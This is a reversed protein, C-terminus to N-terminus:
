DSSNAIKFFNNTDFNSPTEANITNSVPIFEKSFKDIEYFKSIAKDAKKVVRESGSFSLFIVALVSLFIFKIKM